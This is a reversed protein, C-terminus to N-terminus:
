RRARTRPFWSPLSTHASPTSGEHSMEAGGPGSGPADVLTGGRGRPMQVERDLLLFLIERAQRGHSRLRESRKVTVPLREYGLQACVILRSHGDKLAVAGLEDIIVTLPRELGRDDIELRTKKLRDAQNRLLDLTRERKAVAQLVDLPVEICDVYRPNDRWPDRRGAKPQRKALIVIVGAAVLLALCLVVIM